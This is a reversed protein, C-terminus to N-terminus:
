KRERVCVCQRCVYTLFVCVCVMIPVKEPGIESMHLDQMCLCVFVACVFVVDFLIRGIRM